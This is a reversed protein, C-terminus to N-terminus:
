KFLFKDFKGVLIDHSRFLYSIVSLSKWGFAVGTNLNPLNKGTLNGL